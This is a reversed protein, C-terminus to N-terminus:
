SWPRYGWKDVFRQMDQGGIEALVGRTSQNEKTNQVPFGPVHVVGGAERAQISIDDDGCLWQFREDIRLGLEGRLMFAWGTLRTMVSAATGAGWFHRGGFPSQSAAAAGTERMANSMAEFWGAPVIADDNLIAVDYQGDAHHEPASDKWSEFLDLGKNWLRSLNPPQQDDPFVSYFEPESIAAESVPPESANDIVIAWDVQDQISELCLKLDDPRNHTAIVAYKPIM